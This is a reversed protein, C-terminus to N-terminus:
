TCHDERSRKSEFSATESIGSNSICRFLNAIIRVYTRVYIIIKM